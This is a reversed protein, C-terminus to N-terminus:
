VVVLRFNQSQILWSRREAAPAKGSAKNPNPVLVFTESFQKQPGKHPEELRVYGSVQVLISMDKEPHRSSRSLDTAAYNPNLVQCDLSQVDFSTYPLGEVM